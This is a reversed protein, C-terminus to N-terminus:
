EVKEETDSEKEVGKPKPATVNLYGNILSVKVDEKTRGPLLVTILFYDGADEINYLINGAFGQWCKKMHKLFEMPGHGSFPMCGIFAKPGCGHAHRRKPGFGHHDCM